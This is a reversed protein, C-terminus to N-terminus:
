KKKKEGRERKSHPRPIERKRRKLKQAERPKQRVDGKKGKAVFSGGKEKERRLGGKQACQEFLKSFPEREGGKEEWDKM